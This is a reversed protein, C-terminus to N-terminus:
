VSFYESKEETSQFEDWDVAMRKRRAAVPLDDLLPEADDEVKSGHLTLFYVYILLLIALSLVVKSMTKSTRLVIVYLKDLAMSLAM